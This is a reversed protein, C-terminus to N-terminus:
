RIRIIVNFRLMNHITNLCNWRVSLSKDGVIEVDSRVLDRFSKIPITGVALTSVLAANFLAFTLTIAFMLFWYAMRASNTTSMETLGLSEKVQIKRVEYYFVLLLNVSDFKSVEGQQTVIAAMWVFSQTQVQVSESYSANGEVLEKGHKEIMKFFIFSLLFIALSSIWHVKPFSGCVSDLSFTVPQKLAAVLKDNNFPTLFSLAKVRYPAMISPTISFDAEGKLIQRGVGLLSGDHAQSIWGEGAVVTYRCVHM